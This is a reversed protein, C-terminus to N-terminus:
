IRSDNGNAQHSTGNKNGIVIKVNIGNSQLLEVIEDLTYIGKMGNLEIVTKKSKATATSTKVTETKAM